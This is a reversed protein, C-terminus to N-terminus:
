YADLKEELEYLFLAEIDHVECFAKQELSPELTSVYYQTQPTMIGQHIIFISPYKLILQQLTDLHNITNSLEGFAVFVYPTQTYSDIYYQEVNLFEDKFLLLQEYIPAAYICLDDELGLKNAIYSVEGFEIDTYFSTFNPYGYFLTHSLESLTPLFSLAVIDCISEINQQLNSQVQLISFAMQEEMEETVELNILQLPNELHYQDILSLCLADSWYEIGFHKGLALLRSLLKGKCKFNACYLQDLNVNLYLPSHCHPCTAEPYEIKLLYDTHSPLYQNSFCDQLTIM